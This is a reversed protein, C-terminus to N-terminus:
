LDNTVKTTEVKVCRRERDKIVKLSALQAYNDHDSKVNIVRRQRPLNRRIKRQNQEDNLTKTIILDGYM